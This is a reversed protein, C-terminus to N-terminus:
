HYVAHDGGEREGSSRDEEDQGEGEDFIVLTNHVHHCGEAHVEHPHEERPGDSHEGVEVAAWTLRRTNGQCGRQEGRTEMHGDPRDKNYAIACRMWVSTHVRVPNMDSPLDGVSAWPMLSAMSKHPLADGCAVCACGQEQNINKCQVVVSHILHRLPNRPICQRQLGVGYSPVLRELVPRWPLLDM